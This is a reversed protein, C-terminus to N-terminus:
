FEHVWEKAKPTKKEEKKKKKLVQPNIKDKVFLKNGLIDIAVIEYNLNLPLNDLVVKGKKLEKKDLKKILNGKNDWIEVRMERIPIIHKKVNIIIKIKNDIKLAKLEIEPPKKVVLVNKEVVKFNGAEDWVSLRIKYIGPPVPKDSNDVGRWFFTSPLDGLQEEMVVVKNKKSLIELKWRTIKEKKLIKPRIELYRNFAIMNALKKIGWFELKIQPPTNDVTYSGIFIKKQINWNKNWKSILIIPYKGEKLDARWFAIYYAGTKLLPILKNDGVNLMLKEPKPGSFKLKLAVEMTNGPKVSKTKFIVDEIELVPFSYMVNIREEKFGAFLDKFCKKLIDEYTIKKIGLISHYDKGCFSFIKSWVLKCNKAKLIRIGVCLSPVEKDLEYISGLLIYQAKLKLFIERAVVRDIVGIRKIRLKILEKIVEQPYIVKIGQTVLYSAVKEAFKINVEENGSFDEFPFVAIQTFGIKIFIFFYCITFFLIKLRM